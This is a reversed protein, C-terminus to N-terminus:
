QCLFCVGTSGSTGDMGACPGLLSSMKCGRAPTIQAGMPVETLHRPPSARLMSCRESWVRPSIFEALSHGGHLSLVLALLRSAPDVLVSGAGTSTGGTGEGLGRDLPVRVLNQVVVVMELGRVSIGNAVWGLCHMCGGCAAPWGLLVEQLFEGWIQPLQRMCLDRTRPPAAAVEVRAEGLALLVPPLSKEM